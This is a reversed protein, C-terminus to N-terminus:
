KRRRFILLAAAGLGALAFTTPEPVLAVGFHADVGEGAAQAGMGTPAVGTATYAYAFPNSWGVPSGALAAAQPTAYLNSWAVFLALVNGGGTSTGAVTFPSGANYTVGGGGTLSGVAMLGTGSDVGYQFNGDTTLAGWATSPVGAAGTAPGQVSSGLVNNTPILSYGTALFVKSTATLSPSWLFAVNFPGAKLPPNVTNNWVFGGGTTFIFNGQAFASLGTLTAAVTLTILTKKM